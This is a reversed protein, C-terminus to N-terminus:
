KYGTIYNGTEEFFFNKKEIMVLRDGIISPIDRAEITHLLALSYRFLEATGNIISTKFPFDELHDLAEAAKCMGAISNNIKISIEYEPNTGKIDLSAFLEEALETINSCSRERETLAFTYLSVNFINATSIAIIAMDILQRTLCSNDKLYIATNIKSSYKAFHLVMHTARRQVDLLWIEKHYKEDHQLQKLQMTKLQDFLTM